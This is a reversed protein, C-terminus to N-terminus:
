HPENRGAAIREAKAVNKDPLRSLMVCLAEAIRRRALASLHGGDDTYERVLSPAKTGNAEVVEVDGSPTTSELAALDFIPERGSYERLMLANFEARRLNNNFESPRRGLLAKLLAKPGSQVAKLPVTVHVFTIDPFRARARAMNDRYQAFLSAADTSEVVDLYCYKHFAIDLSAGLGEEVARVFAETKGRPDRNRGV